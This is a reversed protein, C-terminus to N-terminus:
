KVMTVVWTCGLEHSRLHVFLLVVLRHVHVGKSHANQFNDGVLVRIHLALIGRLYELFDATYTNYKIKTMSVIYLGIQNFGLTPWVLTVIKFKQFRWTICFIVSTSNIVLYLKNFTLKEVQVIDKFHKSHTKGHWTVVNIMFINVFTTVYITSNWVGTM